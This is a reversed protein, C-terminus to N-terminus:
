YAKDMTNGNNEQKIADTYFKDSDMVWLEILTDISRFVVMTEYTLANTCIDIVEVRGFSPHRWTGLYDTNGMDCDGMLKVTGASRNSM